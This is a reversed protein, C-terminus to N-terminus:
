YFLFKYMLNTFSVIMINPQV